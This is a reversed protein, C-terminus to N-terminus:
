GVFKEVALQFAHVSNLKKNQKCVEIAAMLDDAIKDDVMSFFLHTNDLYHKSAFWNDSEDPEDLKYSQMGVESFAPVKQEKLLGRAEEVFEEVCMLIVVKM